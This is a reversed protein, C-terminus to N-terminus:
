CVKLDLLSLGKNLVSKHDTGAPGYVNLEVRYEQNDIHWNVELSKLKDKAITEVPIGVIIDKQPERTENVSAFNLEGMEWQSKFPTANTRVDEVNINVSTSSVEKDNSITISKTSGKLKWRERQVAAEEANMNRFEQFVLSETLPTVTNLKYKVHVPPKDTNKLILSKKVLYSFLHVRINHKASLEKVNIKKFQTTSLLSNIDKAYGKFDRNNYKLSQLESITDSAPNLFSVMTDTNTNTNEKKQLRQQHQERHAIKMKEYLASLRVVTLQDTKDTVKLFSVNRNERQLELFGKSILFQLFHDNLCYQRNIESFKVQTFVKRSLKTRFYIMLGSFNPGGTITGTAPITHTQGVLTM